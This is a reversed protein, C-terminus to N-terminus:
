LVTMNKRASEMAHQRIDGWGWEHGLEVRNGESTM